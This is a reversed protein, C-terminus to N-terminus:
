PGSTSDCCAGQGAPGHLMGCGCCWCLVGSNTHPCNHFHSRPATVNPAMTENPMLYLNPSDYM